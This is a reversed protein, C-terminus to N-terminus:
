PYKSKDWEKLLRCIDLAALMEEYVEADVEVTKKWKRLDQKKGKLLIDVKEKWTNNDKRWHDNNKRREKRKWIKILENPKDSKIIFEPFWCEQFIQKRPIEGDLELAKKKFEETYSVRTPYCWSVYKNRQLIEIQKETYIIKEM